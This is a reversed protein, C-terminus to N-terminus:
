EDTPKQLAVVGVTGSTGDTDLSFTDEVTRLERALGNGAVVLQVTNGLSRRGTGLACVLFRHDDVLQHQGLRLM